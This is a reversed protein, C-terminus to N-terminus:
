NIMIMAYLLLVEPLGQFRQIKAHDVFESPPVAAAGAGQFAFFSPAPQYPSQYVPAGPRVMIRRMPMIQRKRTHSKEIMGLCTRLFIIRIVKM